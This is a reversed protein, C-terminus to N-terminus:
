RLSIRLALTLSATLIVLLVNLQTKFVEVLVDHAIAKYALGAASDPAAITVPLLADEGAATDYPVLPLSHLPCQQLRLYSANAEAGTLYTEAATKQSADVSPSAASTCTEGPPHSHPAGSGCGGQSSVAAGDVGESDGLLAKCGALLNDRGGRGFPYYRTGHECDFYSMNEVQPVCV